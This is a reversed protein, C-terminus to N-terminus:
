INFNSEKENKKLGKKVFMIINYIILFLVFIIVLSFIGYYSFKRTIGFFASDVYEVFLNFSSSLNYLDSVLKFVIYEVFWIALSIVILSMGRGRIMEKSKKYLEKSEDLIKLYIKGRKSKSTTLIIENFYNYSSEFSLYVIVSILVFASLIIILLNINKSIFFYVLSITLLILSDFFRDIWVLIFGRSFKGMAKGYEFMKYIEGSKFPLIINILATKVYIKVFKSFEIRKEILLLYTRFMRLIHLSIILIIALIIFLINEFNFVKPIIELIKDFNTYIIFTLIIVSVIEFLFTVYNMLKNKM